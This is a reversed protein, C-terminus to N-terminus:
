GGFNARGKQSPFLQQQSTAAWSSAANGLVQGWQMPSPLYTTCMVPEQEHRTLPPSTHYDWALAKLFHKHKEMIEKPHLEHHPCRNEIRM